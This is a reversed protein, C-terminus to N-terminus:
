KKVLLVVASSVAGQLAVVFGSFALRKAPDKIRLTGESNLRVLNNSISSVVALLEAQKDSAPNSVMEKTIKIAERNGDNVAILLPKIANIDNQSLTGNAKAETLFTAIRLESEAITDEAKALQRVKDSSCAFGYSGYVVILMLMISTIKRNRVLYM